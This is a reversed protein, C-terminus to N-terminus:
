YQLLVNPWELWDQFISIKCFEVPSDKKNMMILSLIDAAFLAFYAFPGRLELKRSCLSPYKLGLYEYPAPTGKGKCQNSHNENYKRKNRGEYKLNGEAEDVGERKM